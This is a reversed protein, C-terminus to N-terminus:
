QQFHFSFYIELLIWIVIGTMGETHQLVIKCFKSTRTKAYRSFFAFSFTVHM